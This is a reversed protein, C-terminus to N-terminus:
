SLGRVEEELRWRRTVRLAQALAARYSAEDDFHQQNLQLSEAHVDLPSTAFPWPAVTAYDVARWHLTFRTGGPGLRLDVPDGRERRYDLCLVLSLWDTLRLLAYAEEVEEETAAAAVRWAAQAPQQEAIFAAVAPEETRDAYLSTAHVSVLLGVWPGQHRAYTIGRRWNALHEDLPMHMFDRPGGDDTLTPAQEWEVWGVDHQGVAVLTETRRPPPAFDTNGWAAAVQASLLAHAPQM